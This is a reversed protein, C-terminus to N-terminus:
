KNCYFLAWFPKKKNKERSKLRPGTPRSISWLRKM